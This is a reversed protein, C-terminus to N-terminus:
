EAAYKIIGHLFVSYERQVCERIKIKGESELEEALQEIKKEDEKTTKPIETSFMNGRSSNRLKTLLEVKNM